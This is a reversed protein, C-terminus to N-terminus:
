EREINARNKQEQGRLQRIVKIDNQNLSGVIACTEELHKITNKEKLSLKKNKPTTSTPKKIEKIIIRFILEKAAKEYLQENEEVATNLYQIANERDGKLMSIYGLYYYVDDAISEDIICQMFYTEAEELENYLLAIQGLDFKAHYLISNLQAAKEYYEKASQFDNIRTFAMGLNYYLEYKDPNYTLAQLYVNIAEKFNEKEYLIDGLLCSAEYCDPQKTLTENLVRIADENKGENKLLTATSVKLTYDTPNIDLARNYEDIAIENNGLKNFTNALEKHVYYSDPLKEVANMLMDKAKETEGKKYYYRSLSIYIIESLFLGKKEIIIVAIPLLISILYTLVMFFASIHFRFILGIFGIFIGIAQALLIYTYNTDNKKIMKLFIIIFLVFALINFIIREGIM